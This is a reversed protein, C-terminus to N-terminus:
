CCFYCSFFLCYSSAIFSLYIFVAKKLPFLNFYSARRWSFFINYAFISSSSLIWLSLRIYYSSFFLISSSSSTFYRFKDKFSSTSCLLPWNFFNFLLSLIAFSCFLSIWYNIAWYLSYSSYYFLFRTFSSLNTLIIM